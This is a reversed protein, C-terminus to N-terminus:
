FNLIWYLIFQMAYTGQEQLLQLLQQKQQRMQTLFAEAGLKRIEPIIDIYTLQINQQLDNEYLSGLLSLNHALYMCNNHFIATQQPINAIEEKHCIPVVSCYLECIGRSTYYLKPTYISDINKAEDKVEYLLMVLEKM